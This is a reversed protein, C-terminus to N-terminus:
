VDGEQRQVIAARSRLAWLYALDRRHERAAEYAIRAAETKTRIWVVQTAREAAQAAELKTQLALLNM